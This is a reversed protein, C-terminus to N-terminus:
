PIWEFDVIKVGIFCDDVCSKAFYGCSSLVGLNNTYFSIYNEEVNVTLYDGVCIDYLEDLTKVPAGKTHTGLDDGTETYSILVPKIATSETLFEEHKRTTVVGDIVTIETKNGFGVWSIFETTYKYSTGNTVKLQNWAELSENFNYEKAIKLFHSRLISVYKKLVEPENKYEFTIKHVKGEHTIEIWEAGGDTCDPCGYTEDLQSFTNFNFTNSLSTWDGTNITKTEELTPYDNSETWSEKKYIIESNSLTINQNCYGVCFGFSTGYKIQDITDSTEETENCATLIFFLTLISILKNMSNFCNLPKYSNTLHIFLFFTANNNKFYNLEGIMCLM